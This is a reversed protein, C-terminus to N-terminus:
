RSHAAWTQTPNRPVLSIRSAFSASSSPLLPTLIGSSASKDFTTSLRPGLYDNLVKIKLIFSGM